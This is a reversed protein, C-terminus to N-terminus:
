NAIAEVAQDAISQLQARPAGAKILVKLGYYSAVAANAMHEAQDPRGDQEVRQIIADRLTAIWAQVREAIEPDKTAQDIAADCMLCGRLPSQDAAAAAGDFLSRAADSAHTAYLFLNAAATMEKAGYHELVALYLGRKDAYTNYLSGRRVGTARELDSTTTRDYGLEWFVQMAADLIDTTDHKRPRAM